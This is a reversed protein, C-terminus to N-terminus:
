SIRMIFALVYFPPMNEHPTGSGRSTESVTITHNHYTSTDNNATLVGAYSLFTSTGPAFNYGINSLPAGMAPTSGASASISHSHGGDRAAYTNNTPDGTKASVDHSHSPMQAVTLTVTEVGGTAGVNRTSLGGALPIGGNASTPSTSSLVFRGRLDPTVISNHTSGDCLKWNSPISAITGSWMIIGGIPISTDVYSKNAADTAATPTTLSTIKNSNMNLEGSIRATGAVDLPVTPDAINIGVRGTTILATGTTATSMIRAAAVSAAGSVDLRVRPVTTGIGVNGSGDVLMRDVGATSIRVSNSFKASETTNAGILDICSNAPTQATLRLFGTNNATNVGRIENATSPTTQIATPIDSSPSFANSILKIRPNDTYGTAASSIHIIGSVDINPAVSSHPTVAAFNKGVSVPGNLNARGTVSVDGAQNIVVSNNQLTSGTQFTIFNPSIIGLGSADTAISNTAGGLAATEGSAISRHYVGPYSSSPATPTTTAKNLLIMASSADTAGVGPHTGVMVNGCVHLARNLGSQGVATLQDPTIGGMGVAGTQNVVCFKDQAAIINGNSLDFKMGINAATKNNNHLNFTVTPPTSGFNHVLKFGHTIDAVTAPSQTPERNPTIDRGSALVIYGGGVGTVNEGGKV